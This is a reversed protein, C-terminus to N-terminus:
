RPTIAPPRLSATASSCRPTSNMPASWPPACCPLVSATSSAGGADLVLLGQAAFVQSYFDAFAQAFTRGPQYAAALADMADSPGLLEWARDILPMVTTSCWAAWRGHAAPAPAHLRVKLKYLEQRAPFIVHDIEAFDHDESALWFIAAHAPGDGTAPPRQALATAAKHPTFLPGGFLGVQQGTVVVGAGQRLRELPRRPLLLLNQVALLDM